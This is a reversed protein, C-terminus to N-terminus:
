AVFSKPSRSNSTRSAIDCSKCDGFDSVDVFTSEELAFLVHWRKGVLKPKRSKSRVVLLREEERIIGRVRFHRFTSIPEVDWPIRSRHGKPIKTSAQGRKQSRRVYGRVSVQSGGKSTERKAIEPTTNVM